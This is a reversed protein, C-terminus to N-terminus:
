FSFIRYLFLSFILWNGLYAPQSFYLSLTQLFLWPHIFIEWSNWRNLLVLLVGLAILPIIVGIYIQAVQEDWIKKILQRMQKLLWVFALWGLIAYTFFVVITWADQLCVHHESIVSCASVVHRVDTIIYATNPIFLLWLGALFLAGLKHYWAKFKTARWYQQLGGCLFWPITVLFLNWVIMVIPYDNITLESLWSTDHQFFYDLSGQSQNFDLKSM